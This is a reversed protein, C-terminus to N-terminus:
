ALDMTPEQAISRDRHSSNKNNNNKNEHIQPTELFRAVLTLWHSVIKVM